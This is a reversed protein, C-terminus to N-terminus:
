ENFEDDRDKLYSGLGEGKIKDVMPKWMEEQYAATAKSFTHLLFAHDLAQRLGQANMTDNVARKCMKLGLKPNKAITQALVMTAENLKERPVVRNVMGVRYAEAASMQDGTFLHEKARRGGGMVWPEMFIEAAFGYMRASPSWFIADESAVILDCVNALSFGGLVAAGQVRAITPTDTNWIDLGAKRFFADECGSWMAEPTGCLDIYDQLGEASLDHGGSFVNGIGGIIIVHVNPDADAAMVASHLEEAMGFGVPNRKEAVNM